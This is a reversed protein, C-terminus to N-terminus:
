FNENIWRKRRAHFAAALSGAVDGILDIDTDLLSPQSPPSPHSVRDGIFELIEYCAGLTVGLCFIFLFKAPGVISNGRLQAVLAYAFLSFSYAGFAHLAKDFIFSSVYLDLYYGCFADFFLTLMMLLRIYASMRLRYKLELFIYLAWLASTELVSFAYDTRGKDLLATMIITQIILFIVTSLMTRRKSMRALLEGKM